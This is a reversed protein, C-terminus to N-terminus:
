LEGLVSFVAWSTPHATIPDAILRLRAARLAAPTASIRDPALLDPLIAAAVRVKAMWHSMVINRAGAALFARPLGSFTEDDAREDAAASNCAALIVLSSSHLRFNAIEDAKLLGDLAVEDPLAAAEGGPALALAPQDLGALDQAGRLGHTGFFIAAASALADRHQWLYAETADAGTGITVTNPPWRAAAAALTSALGSLPPLDQFHPPSSPLRATDSAAAFRPDAVGFIGGPAPARAAPVDQRRVALAAGVSPALMIEWVRTLWPAATFWTSDELPVEPKEPKETLLLDLPVREFDGDLIITVRETVGQRRFFERARELWDKELRHAVAAPFPPLDQRRGLPTVAQLLQAIDRRIADATSQVPFPRAADHTVAFVHGRLAGVLLVLLGEGPLLAAQTEALPVPLLAAQALLQPSQQLMQARIEDLGPAYAGSRLPLDLEGVRDKIRAQRDLETLKDLQETLARSKPDTIANRHAVRAIALDAGSTRSLQMVEFAAALRPHDLAPNNTIADVIVLLDKEFIERYRRRWAALDDPGFDLPVSTMEAVLHAARNLYMEAASPERCERAMWGREALLPALDQPAIRREMAVALIEDFRNGAAACAGRRAAIQTLLALSRSAATQGRYAVSAIQLVPIAEDDRGLRVLVDGYLTLAEGSERTDPHLEGITDADAQLFPLAETYRGLDILATGNLRNALAQDYLKENGSLAQAVKAVESAEKLVDLPRGLTLLINGRTFHLSVRAEPSSYPVNYVASDIDALAGGVNGVSSRIVARAQFLSFITSLSIGPDSLVDPVLFADNIAALADRRRDQALLNLALSRRVLLVRTDRPSLGAASAQALAERLLGEGKAVADPGGLRLGSAWRERLEVASGAPDPSHLSADLASACAADVQDVPQHSRVASACDAALTDLTSTVPQVHTGFALLLTLVAVLSSKVAM